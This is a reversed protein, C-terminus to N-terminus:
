ESYNDEYTKSLIQKIFNRYYSYASGVSILLTVTVLILEYFAYWVLYEKLVPQLILMTLYSFQTATKAKGFWSVPVSFGNECAILRLGMVFLERGILILVTYFSTRDIVLLGILTAYVLFKDAIPDLATGLRTEQDFKRAFYGDLLDTISFFIFVVALFIHGWFHFYPTAYVLLTPM